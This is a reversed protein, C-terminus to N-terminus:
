QVFSVTYRNRMVVESLGTKQDTQHHPFKVEKLSNIHGIAVEVPTNLPLIIQGLDFYANGCSATCTTTHANQKPDNDIIEVVKTAKADAEAKKALQGVTAKKAIEAREFSSVIAKGEAEEKEKTNLAETAEVAEEVTKANSEKSEYFENIRTKLKEESINPSFTIGLEKAEQRLEKLTAM